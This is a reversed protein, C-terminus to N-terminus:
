IAKLFTSDAERPVVRALVSLVFNGYAQNMESGTSPEKVRQLFADLCASKGPCAVMHTPVHTISSLNM